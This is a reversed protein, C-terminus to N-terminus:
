GFDVNDYIGELALERQISALPVSNERESTATYRWHGGEQRLFQEVHPETQSVLLYETLTPITRYHEFKKGRDYAETTPSLVEVLLVPNLLTDLGEVAFQAKGCVVVLDPYTYLGTKPIYVRQDNPCVTCSRGKLQDKLAWALNGIIVNHLYTGGTMAFMEGDLYESRTEAEREIALYEEPSLFPKPQAQVMSTEELSLIRHDAWKHWDFCCELGGLGTIKGDGARSM